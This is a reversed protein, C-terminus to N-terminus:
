AVSSECNAVESANPAAHKPSASVKNHSSPMAARASASARVRRAAAEHKVWAIEVLAAPLIDAEMTSVDAPSLPKCISSVMQAALVLFALRLTCKRSVHHSPHEEKSRRAAKLSKCNPTRLSSCRLSDTRIAAALTHEGTTLRDPMQYQKQNTNLSGSVSQASVPCEARHPSGQRNHEDRTVRAEQEGHQGWTGPMPVMTAGATGQRPSGIGFTTPPTSGFFPRRDLKILLTSHAVFSRGIHLTHTPSECASSPVRLLLGSCVGHM